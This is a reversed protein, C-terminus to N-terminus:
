SVRQGIVVSLPLTLLAAGTAVAARLPASPTEDPSAVAGIGSAMVSWTAGNDELGDIQVSLVDGRRAAALVADETSTLLLRHDSVVDIRAPLAAPLCRISIVVRAYAAARLLELCTARELTTRTLRDGPVDM